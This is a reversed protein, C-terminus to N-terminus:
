VKAVFSYEVVLLTNCALGLSGHGLEISFSLATFFTHSGRNNCAPRRLFFSELGIKKLIIIGALSAPSHGTGLKDPCCAWSGGGSWERGLQGQEILKCTVASDLWHETTLAQLTGTSRGKRGQCEGGTSALYSGKSSLKGV